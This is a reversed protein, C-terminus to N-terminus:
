DRDDDSGHTARSLRDRVALWEPDDPVAEILLVDTNAADLARLNAYLDHAYRRVDRAARIWPGDFGEPPTVSHALVGVREDREALREIEARLATSEAVLALTRPAYHSTLTGSARPASTDASRPAVGLVRAIEGIPVAGPRLLMPTGGTCAVITSEIGVESPGGDLILDVRTDLDEAVHEATTPSVHGYRNASPAAIGSGGRDVFARLLSRAVPHSPVRLGVTDQGGTVIDHARNSRPLILTLPGPWFAEALARAGAPAERAWVDLGAADHLHVILPHDAPRGKAVFIRRVAERDSANAGLGYVTETPFAVLDGRLLREAAEDITAADPLVIRASM